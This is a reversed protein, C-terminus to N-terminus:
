RYYVKVSCGTNLCVSSIDRCPVDQPFAILIDSIDHAKVLQPIEAIKGLQAIGEGSLVDDCVIGILKEDSSSSKSLDSALRRATEGSGVIMVRRPNLCVPKERLHMFLRAAWSICLYFAWVAVLYLTLTGSKHLSFLDLAVTLGFAIITAMGSRLFPLAFNVNSKFSYSRFLALVGCYCIVIKPLTRNVDSLIATEIREPAYRVLLAAYTALVAIVADIFVSLLIRVVRKQNAKM